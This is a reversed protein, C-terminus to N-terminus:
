SWHVFMEISRGLDPVAARIKFFSHIGFIVLRFGFVRLRESCRRTLRAPRKAHDPQIESGPTVVDLCLWFIFGVALKATAPFFTLRSNFAFHGIVQGFQRGFHGSRSFTLTSWITARANDAWTSAHRMRSSM